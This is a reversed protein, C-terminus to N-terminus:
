DEQMKLFQQNDKNIKKIKEQIRADEEKWLEREREYKKIMEDEHKLLDDMERIVGDAMRNMFDQQRRERAAFENKRDLEQRELMKSYAEQMKIDAQREKEKQVKMLTQNKENEAMIQEFYDREQKKKEIAVQKERDM